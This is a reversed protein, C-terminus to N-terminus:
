EDFLDSLIEELLIDAFEENLLENGAMMVKRYEEVGGESFANLIDKMHREVDSTSIWDKRSGDIDQGVFKDTQLFALFEAASRNGTRLCMRLIQNQTRLKTIYNM